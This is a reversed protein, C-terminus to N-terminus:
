RYLKSLDYSHAAEYMALTNKYPMKPHIESSAGIIIGIGGSDEIAQVTAETVEDETGFMLLKESDVPQCITIDPYREKVEKVTIGAEPDFANLGAPM